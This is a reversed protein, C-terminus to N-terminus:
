NAHKAVEQELTPLQAWLLADSGMALDWMWGADEDMSTDPLVDRGWM